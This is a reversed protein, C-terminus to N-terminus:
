RYLTSRAITHSVARIFEEPIDKEDQKRQWLDLQDPVNRRSLLVVSVMGINRIGKRVVNTNERTLNPYINVFGSLKSFKKLDIDRLFVPYGSAFFAMGFVPIAQGFM